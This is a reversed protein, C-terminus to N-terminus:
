GEVKTVSIYRCAASSGRKWNGFVRVRRRQKIADALIKEDKFGAALWVTEGFGVDMDFMIPAACPQGRHYKVRGIGEFKTSSLSISRAPNPATKSKADACGAAILLLSTLCIQRLFYKM